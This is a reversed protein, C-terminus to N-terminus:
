KSSKIFGLNTKEGSKQVMLPIKGLSIMPIDTDNTRGLSPKHWHWSCVPSAPLWFSLPWCLLSRIHWPHFPLRNLPCWVTCIYPLNSPIERIMTCSTRPQDNFHGGSARFELFSGLTMWSTPYKYLLDTPLNTHLISFFQNKLTYRMHRLKIYSKDSSEHPSSFGGSALLSASMWHHGPCSFWM